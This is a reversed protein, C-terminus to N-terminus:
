PTEGEAAPAPAAAADVDDFFDDLERDIKLNIDITIHIPEIDHTTEIRHHTCGCVAAIVLGATVADRASCISHIRM